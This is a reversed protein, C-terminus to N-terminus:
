RVTPDLVACLIYLGTAEFIDAARGALALEMEEEEAEALIPPPFVHVHGDEDEYQAASTEVTAEPCLEKAYLALETLKADLTARYGNNRPKAEM